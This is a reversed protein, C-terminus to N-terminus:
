RRRFFYQLVALVVIAIALGAGIWPTISPTNTVKRNSSEESGSELKKKSGTAQTSDAMEVNVSDRINLKKIETQNSHLVPNYGIAQVTHDPHVIITTISDFTITLLGDRRLLSENIRIWNANIREYKTITTDSTDINEWTKSQFSSDKKTRCSNVLLFLCATLILIRLTM